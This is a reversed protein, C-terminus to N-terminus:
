GRRAGGHDGAGTAGAGSVAAAAAARRRACLLDRHESRHLSGTHRSRDPLLRPKQRAPPCRLPTGHPAELCASYWGSHNPKTLNYAMRAPTRQGSKPNVHTRPRDMEAIMLLIATAMCTFLFGGCTM